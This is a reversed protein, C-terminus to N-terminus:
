ILEDKSYDKNANTGIIEDWRMPSIGNGPRKITINKETFKEGRTIVTKAVISKRVITINKMESNSPKKISSGLATETNRIAKVMKKLEDPELSAKHDPGEMKKDLTFHKEICCAGM